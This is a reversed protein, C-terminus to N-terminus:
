LVNRNAFLSMIVMTGRWFFIIFIFTIQRFFESLPEVVAHLIQFGGFGRWRSYKRFFVSRGTAAAEGPAMGSDRRPVPIANKKSFLPSYIGAV